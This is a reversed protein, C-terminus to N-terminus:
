SVYVCTILLDKIHYTACERIDNALVLFGFIFYSLYLHEM